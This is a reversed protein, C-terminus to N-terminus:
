TLPVIPKVCKVSLQKRKHVYVHEIITGCYLCLYFVIGGTFTQTKLLLAINPYLSFSSTYNIYNASIPM